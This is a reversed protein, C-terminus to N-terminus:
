PKWGKLQARARHQYVLWLAFGALTFGAMGLALTALSRGVFPAVTGAVVASLTFQLFGQVSSAMGRFAPFLDLLILTVSPM